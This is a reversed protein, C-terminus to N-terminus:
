LIISYYRVTMIYLMSIMLCALGITTWTKSQRLRWEDSRAELKKFPSLIYIASLAFCVVSISPFLLILFRVFENLKEIPDNVFLTPQVALLFLLGAIITADIIVVDKEDIKMETLLM